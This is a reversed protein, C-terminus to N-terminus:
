MDQYTNTQPIQIHKITTQTSSTSNSIKHVPVPQVPELKKNAVVTQRPMIVAVYHMKQM